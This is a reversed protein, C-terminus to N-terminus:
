LNLKLGIGNDSFEIHELVPSLNTKAHNRHITYAIWDFLLLFGGQLVLSNGYGKYLDAKEINSKAESRLVM